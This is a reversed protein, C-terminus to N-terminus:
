MSVVIRFGNKISLLRHSQNTKKDIGGMKLLPLPVYIKVGASEIGM